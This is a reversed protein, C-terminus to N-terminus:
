DAERKIDGWTENFIKTFEESLDKKLLALEKEFEKGEDFNENEKGIKIKELKGSSILNKLKDLERKDKIIFLLEDEEGKDLVLELKVEDMLALNVKIKDAKGNRAYHYNNLAKLADADKHHNINFSLEYYLRNATVNDEVSAKAKKNPDSTTETSSTPELYNALKEQMKHLWEIRERTVIEKYTQKKNFYFGAVVGITAIVSSIILGLSEGIREEPVIVLTNSVICIFIALLFFALSFCLILFIIDVLFKFISKCNRLLKSEDKGKEKKNSTNEAVFDSNKNLGIKSFLVKFKDKVSM